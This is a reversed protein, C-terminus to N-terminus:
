RMIRRRRNVFVIVLVILVCGTVVAVALRRARSVGVLRDLDEATPAIRYAYGGFGSNLKAGPIRAAEPSTDAVIAGPKLDIRFQDAPWTKHSLEKAAFDSVMIPEKPVTDPIGFYTYDFVRCQRPLWLHPPPLEVFESNLTM